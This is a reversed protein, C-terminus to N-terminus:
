NSSTAAPSTEDMSAMATAVDRPYTHRAWLLSIGAIALPVLMILFAYALATGNGPATANEGAAGRPGGLIGSIFGFLLPGAAFALMYLFTRVGEARGWLRPHMIDLRAANLPSDPAALAAGGLVFLPVSIILLPSLLGPVFIAAAAIYGITGVTVRASPRGKRLLRDAIQGAFVVGALAGAGVLILLGSATAQGLHYRTRMLEVAFTQVGAFFLYALASAVIIILNTRVRLVYRVAQMIPMDVPDAHLVLEDHPTVGEARVTEQAVEQEEEVAPGGAESEEGGTSTGAAAAARGVLRTAGPPLRSAGGRAPEVLMKRIAIALALGPVALWAFGWRWSLASALDGSVVIGIGSGLLEGTLIMGWIKARETAPFFDGTLSALTPGSSATVAGLAVRTLVLVLFSPALASAVMAGSWLVISITLLNLRHMRDTLMGVPLTGAAGALASVAAILGLQTNSIRLSHELQTAVAGVTGTDASNLMLVCAFLAIVRLRVRGGVDHEVRHEVRQRLDEATHIIRAPRLQHAGRARSLSSPKM